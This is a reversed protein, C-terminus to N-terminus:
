EGATTAGRFGGATAASGTAQEYRTVAAQYAKSGFDPTAEGRNLDALGARNWQQVNARVTDRDSASAQDFSPTFVPRSEGRVLGPRGALNDRAAEQAVVARDAQTSIQVPPYSGEPYNQAVAAGAALVSSALVLSQAFKM